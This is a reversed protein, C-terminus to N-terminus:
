SFRRVTWPSSINRCVKSLRCNKLRTRLNMKRTGIESGSNIPEWNGCDNDRRIKDLLRQFAEVFGDPTPTNRFKLFHTVTDRYINTGELDLGELNFRALIELTEVDGWQVAFHLITRDYKERVLHNAGNELLLSTIENENFALSNLLATRELIDRM